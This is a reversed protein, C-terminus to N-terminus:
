SDRKWVRITINRPRTENSGSSGTHLVNRTSMNGRSGSNRNLNTDHHTDWDLGDVRQAHSHSQVAHGQVGGNFANARDGETRFFVGHTDSVAISWNTGPWLAGPDPLGPFQIYTSDIPYPCTTGNFLIEGGGTTVLNIDRGDRAQIRMDRTDADDTWPQGLTRYENIDAQPIVTGTRYILDDVRGGATLDLRLPAPTLEDVDSLSAVESSDIHLTVDSGARALHYHHWTDAPPPTFTDSSLVVGQIKRVTNDEGGSYVYGESDVAVGFVNNTHGTFSWVETGTPSIKRVTADRSVSYVYGESDVAVGRVWDTHGTFSWVQTGTPSIKRVTNDLSSSYVYGESDVAVGSGSETHGTFSWVQNGTPSIKRVTNDNSTSYVYGESDVAVDQVNNTHGPFSWVQDGTPSIKRVTNDQSGSYVFGDSDVAVCFVSATHGTFSWVQNGTPSIKRVTDDTSTSYVFGQSDVAVGWVWNTHGTFSWVETGTPSIKRVTADRSGSYVYGESDVAVNHVNFTHGSFSWVQSPTTLGHGKYRLEGVGLLLTFLSASVENRQWWGVSFDDDPVNFDTEVIGGALAQGFVGDDYSIAEVVDFSDGTNDADLSEDFPFLVAGSPISTGFKIGDVDANIDVLGSGFFWPLFQDLAEPDIGIRLQTTWVEGSLTQFRIRDDSIVVRRLGDISEGVIGEEGVVISDTVNAIIASLIDATLKEAVISGAEIDAGDIPASTGSVVESWDTTETESTARVRFYYTQPLPVDGDMESAPLFAYNDGSLVLYGDTNQIDRWDGFQEPSGDAPPAYWDTLGPEAPNHELAIQIHYGTFRTARIFANTVSVLILRRGTTCKIEPVVPPINPAAKDIEQQVETRTISTLLQQAHGLQIREQKSM